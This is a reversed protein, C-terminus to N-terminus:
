YWKYGLIQLISLGMKRLLYLIYMPDQWTCPPIFGHERAFQNVLHRAHRKDAHRKARVADNKTTTISGPIFKYIYLPGPVAVVKNAFYLARVTFPLDEILRGVEFRLNHTRLMEALFIYRWCYGWKGSWTAYIKGHVSEFVKKKKFRHCKYLSKENLISSCVVDADELEAEQVLDHYFDDSIEDDIDMFHIYTGSAAEIGANRAASLGRNTEFVITKVPYKTAIEASNDTIGDIVVIIELHPYSQSLLNELCRKIYKEGKYCPVIVSVLTGSM